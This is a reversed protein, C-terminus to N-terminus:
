MKTCHNVRQSSLSAEDPSFICDTKTTTTHVNGNTTSPPQDSWDQSSNIQHSVRKSDVCFLHVYVVQGLLQRRQCHKKCVVCIDITHYGAVLVLIVVLVVPGEAGLRTPFSSPYPTESWIIFQSLQYYYCPAPVGKGVGVLQM